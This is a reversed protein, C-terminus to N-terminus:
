YPTPWLFDLAASFNNIFSKLIKWIEERRKGCNTIMETVKHKSLFQTKNDEKIKGPMESYVFTSEPSNKSNAKKCDFILFKPCKTHDVIYCQIWLLFDSFGLL